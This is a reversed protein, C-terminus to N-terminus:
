NKRLWRWLNNAQIKEGGFRVTLKGEEYRITSHLLMFTSVAIFMVMAATALYRFYWRKRAPLEKQVPHEPFKWVSGSLSMDPIDKVLDGAQRLDHLIASCKECVEFHQYFGEPMNEPTEGYMFDMLHNQFKECNMRM